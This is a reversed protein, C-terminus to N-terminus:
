EEKQIKIKRMENVLRSEHINWDAIAMDIYQPEAQDFNRQAQQYAHLASQYPGPKQDPKSKKELREVLLVLVLLFLIFGIGQWWISYIM